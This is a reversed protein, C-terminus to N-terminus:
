WNLCLLLFYKRAYTFLRIWSRYMVSVWLFHSAICRVFCHFSDDDVFESIEILSDALLKHEGFFGKVYTRASLLHHLGWYRLCALLEQKASASLRHKSLFNLLAPNMSAIGGASDLRCGWDEAVDLNQKPTANSQSSNRRLSGPGASATEFAASSNLGQAHDSSHSTLWTNEPYDDSVLASDATQCHTLCAAITREYSM